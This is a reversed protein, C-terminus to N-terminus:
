KILIKEITRKKPFNVPEIVLIYFGNNVIEIQSSRILGSKVVMGLTNFLYYKFVENQLGTISVLGSSPNPFISVDYKSIEGLGLTSSAGISVADVWGFSQFHCADDLGSSAAGYFALTLSDIDKSQFPIEFETFEPMPEFYFKQMFDKFEGGSFLQVRVALFVVENLNDPILKAYFYLSQGSSLPSDIKIGSYVLSECTEWASNYNPIFKLSYNGEVSLTDRVLRLHNTDQNTNWFIPKEYNDIQEWEEFGSNLVQSNLNEILLLFLVTILFTLVSHHTICSHFKVKYWDMM